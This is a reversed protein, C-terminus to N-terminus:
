KNKEMHRDFRKTTWFSGPARAAALTELPFLSATAQLKNMGTREPMEHLPIHCPSVAGSEANQWSVRARFGQQSPLQLLQLLMACALMGLAFSVWAPLRPTMGLKQQRRFFPLWVM